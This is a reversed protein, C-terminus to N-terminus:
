QLNYNIRFKLGDKELLIMGAQINTITMGDLIDGKGVIKGNILVFLNNADKKSSGTVAYKDSLDIRSSEATSLVVFNKVSRVGMLGKMHNVMEEYSMKHKEDVRGTLVLEGNSLQFTVSAFGKEILMSQIQTSLNGEVVIQNDLRDLYPFNINLYDSLAQAQDLTALYGRIVFKGPSPSHISVGQWDPNSILLANMNQWVYEDVVVNDEIEGIFPLNKLTYLLEQKDVNTLVHGVLFLKGNSQTFSFQIDSYNKIAEQIQESEHKESVVIPEAKFLSFTGFFLLFLFFVGVGGLILHRKPIRMESVNKVPALTTETEEIRREEAAAATEAKASTLVSPSIITERAQKRDILLFTTTGLAVLDQSSIQHKDTIPEGNVLVGNRSSLDEIFVNEQDDITLRAHQRSVSLDHFIIDCLNPDKGILYIAGKHMSFEAGANPGTIVKMLWRADMSSEVEVGELNEEYVPPTEMTEAALAEEEILAPKQSSFRFFTSGIQIIDGETLLVSETIIKGNQTAPNVASLNELLFGESTAHIIVHRRSVMPDELVLTTVDPDRGIVWETGEEFRLIIGTLPGEEAILYGAM